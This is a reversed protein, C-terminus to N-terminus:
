AELLKRSEKRRWAPSLSNDLERVEQIGAQGAAVLFRAREAPNTIELADLINEVIKRSPVLDREVRSIYSPDVGISAALQAQTMALARRARRLSIGLEEIDPMADRRIRWYEYITSCSSLDLLM